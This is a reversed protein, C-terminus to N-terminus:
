SFVKKPKYEWSIESLKRDYNFLQALRLFTRCTLVFNSRSFDCIHVFLSLYRCEPWTHVSVGSELLTIDGTISGPFTEKISCAVITLGTENIIRTMESEYFERSQFKYDDRVVLDGYIRTNAVICPTPKVIIPAVV